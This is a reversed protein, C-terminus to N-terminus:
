NIMQIICKEEEGGAQWRKGRRYQVWPSPPEKTRM